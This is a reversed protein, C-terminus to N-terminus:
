PFVGVFGMHFTVQVQLLEHTRLTTLRKVSFSHTIVVLPSMVLSFVVFGATETGLLEQGVLLEPAVLCNVSSLFGELTILATPPETLFGMQLGM